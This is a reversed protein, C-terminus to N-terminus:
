EGEEISDHCNNEKKCSCNEKGCDCTNNIENEHCNNSCNNIKNKNEKNKKSM